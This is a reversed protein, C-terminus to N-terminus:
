ANMLFSLYYQVSMAYSTRNENLLPAFMLVPCGLHIQKERNMAIHVPLVPIDYGTKELSHVCRDYLQTNVDDTSYAQWSETETLTIGAKKASHQLSTMNSEIAKLNHGHVILHDHHKELVPMFWRVSEPIIRMVDNLKTHFTLGKPHLHFVDTVVHYMAIIESDKVPHFLERDRLEGLWDYEQNDGSFAICKGAQYGTSVLASIRNLGALHVFGSDDTIVGSYTLGTKKMRYLLQEDTVTYQPDFIVDFANCPVLNNEFIQECASMFADYAQRHHFVFLLRRQTKTVGEWQLADECLDTIRTFALVLRPWRATYKRDNWLTENKEFRNFFTDQQSPQIRMVPHYQTNRLSHILLILTCVLIIIICVLILLHIKRMDTGGM